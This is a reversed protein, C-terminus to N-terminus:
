RPSSMEVSDAEESAGRCDAYWISCKMLSILPIPVQGSTARAAIRCAMRSPDSTAEMPPVHNRTGLTQQRESV